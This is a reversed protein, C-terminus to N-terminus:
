LNVGMIEQLSKVPDGSKMLTEGILFNHIGADRLIKIDKYDRIGSESVLVANGAMSALRKSTHIDTIFTDLNRNNIGIIEVGANVAREMEDEDHVETIVDLGVQRGLTYLDVLEDQNLARVILLIADAGMAASEYVQWPSIIFDKRLVPINVVKRAEKLDEPSGRFFDRETLVSLAAAGGAQYLKAQEAVNIGSNIVGKSPSARKIEAIINVGTLSQEELRSKLSRFDTRLKAKEALQEISVTSSAEATERRKNDLIRTLFDNKYNM